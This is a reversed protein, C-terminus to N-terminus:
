KKEEKQQSIFEEVWRINQEEIENEKSEQRKHHNLLQNMNHDLWFFFSIIVILIGLVVFLRGFVGLMRLFGGKKLFMDVKGITETKWLLPFSVILYDRSSKAQHPEDELMKSPIKGSTLLIEGLRLALPTQTPPIWSQFNEKKFLLHFQLERDFTADKWTIVCEILNDIYRFNYLNESAIKQPSISYTGHKYLLQGSEGIVYGEVFGPLKEWYTEIITHLSPLTGSVVYFFIADNLNKDQKFRDVISFFHDKEQEILAFTNTAEKALNEMYQDSVIFERIKKYFAEHWIFFAYHSIGSEVQLETTVAIVGFSIMWILVILMMVKTLIAFSRQM